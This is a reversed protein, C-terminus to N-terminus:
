SYQSFYKGCRKRFFGFFGVNGAIGWKPNPKTSKTYTGSRRYFSFVLFSLSSMWHGIVVFLTLDIGSNRFTHM